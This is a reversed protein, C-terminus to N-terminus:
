RKFKAQAAIRLRHFYDHARIAQPDSLDPIVGARGAHVDGGDDVAEALASLLEENGAFFRQDAGIINSRIVVAHFPAIPISEGAVSRESVGKRIFGFVIAKPTYLDKVLYSLWNPWAMLRNTDAHLQAPIRFVLTYSLLLRQNKNILKRRQERFHEVAPVIQEFMRPHIDESKNCDLAIESGYLCGAKAAPEIFPCVAAM